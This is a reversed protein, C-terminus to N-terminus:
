DLTLTSIDIIYCHPFIVSSLFCTFDKFKGSVIFILFVYFSDFESFVLSKGRVPLGDMIEYKAIVESETNSNCGACILM